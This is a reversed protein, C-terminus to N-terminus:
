ITFLSPFAVSLYYLAPPLTVVAFGLLYPWCASAFVRLRNIEPNLWIAVAIAFMHIGLLAVGTDYRFM